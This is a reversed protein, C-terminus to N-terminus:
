GNRWYKRPNDGMEARAQKHADEDSVGSAKLQAARDELRKQAQADRGTLRGAQPNFGDFAMQPNKFVPKM